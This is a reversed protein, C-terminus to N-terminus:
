QCFFELVKGPSELVGMLFKGPGKPTWSHKFIFFFLLGLVSLPLPTRASPCCPGEGGSLPDPPTSYARGALDPACGQFIQFKTCCSVDFNV